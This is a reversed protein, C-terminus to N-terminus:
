CLSLHFSLSRLCACLLAILFLPYLLCSPLPPPIFIGVILPAAVRADLSLPFACASVAALLSRADTSRHSGMLLFFLSLSLSKVAPRIVNRMATRVIRGQNKLPSRTPRVTRESGEREGQKLGGGGDGAVRRRDDRPGIVSNAHTCIARKVGGARRGRIVPGCDARGGV